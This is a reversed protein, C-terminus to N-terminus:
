EGPLSKVIKVQVREKLERDVAIIASKSLRGTSFVISKHGVYRKLCRLKIREAAPGLQSSLLTEVLTKSVRDVVVKLRPTGNLLVPEVRRLHFARKRGIAFEGSYREHLGIRNIPCIATVREGAIVETEVYLNQEADCATIEGWLLEKEFHKYRATQKLVAVKALNTELQRKLTGRGKIEWLEVLRQMVVGGSQSYAVAELHLDDRFFVLVPLRYWQSLQLALVAEIESIVEASTLSYKTTFSAIVEQM